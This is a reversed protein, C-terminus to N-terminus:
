PPPVTPQPPERTPPREETPEKTPRITSTPSSTLPPTYTATPTLTPRVRTATSTASPSLTWTPTPTFSATGTPTISPTPPTPTRAPTHSPVPLSATLTFTPTATGKTFLAPLGFFLGLVLLGLLALGGAGAAGPFLLRKTRPYSQHAPMPSTPMFQAPGPRIVKAPNSAADEQVPQPAIAIPFSANLGAVAPSGQLALPAAQALPAVAELMAQKFAATNPYRQERELHMAQQIVSSMAPPVQPNLDHAPHPPSVYRSLMDVADPPIHNTLLMYLTAGLAYIDSLADTSGRGYQEPPSFGTTIARAASATSLNPEYVKALGFDVLMAKGQPYLTTPATIRINAPKIDRHIVPPNQSHLYTLADCVQGVWDVALALPLPEGMRELMLRLDEGEVYQMVLYQGQYPLIFHDIVGPLNPHGLDSLIRAELKFQRQAEPSTDLNEKVACPKDLNTDWARYVAGFGGQGLLRVIRYRNNLVQGQLLPM